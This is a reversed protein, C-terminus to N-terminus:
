FTTSSSESGSGSYPDDHDKPLSDLIAECNTEWSKWLKLCGEMEAQISTSHAVISDVYQRQADPNDSAASIGIQLDLINSQAKMLSAIVTKNKSERQFVTKPQDDRTMSAIKGVSSWLIGLRIQREKVQKEMIIRLDGLTNAVVRAFEESNGKDHAELADIVSWALTKRDKAQINVPGGISRIWHNFRLLAQLLEEHLLPAPHASIGFMRATEKLVHSRQIGGVEELPYCGNYESEKMIAVNKLEQMGFLPSLAWQLSHKLNVQVESFDLLIIVLNRLMGSVGLGGRIVRLTNKLQHAYILRQRAIHNSPVSSSLQPLKLMLHLTRVHKLNRPVTSSLLEGNDAFVYSEGRVLVQFVANGYFEDIAETYISKATQLMAPCCSGGDYRLSRYLRNRRTRATKSRSPPVVRDPALYSYIMIRLEMPLQQLPFYDLREPSKSPRALEKMEGKGFALAQTEGKGNQRSPVM